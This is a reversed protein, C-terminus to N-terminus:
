TDAGETSRASPSPAAPDRLVRVPAEILEPEPAAGKSVIRPGPGPVAGDVIWDRPIRGIGIPYITLADQDVHLRLFNKHDPIGQAAYLENSNRNLSDAVVLYLAVVEAGVLGGVVLVLGLVSPLSAWWPLTQVLNAAGWTLLVAIILHLVGHSAGFVWAWGPRRRKTFAVAGILVGIVVGVSTLSDALSSALRGPGAAELTASTARLRDPLTVLEPGLAWLMVLTLLTYVGGMLAAFAPILLPLRLVGWRLRLSTTADPFVGRREFPVPDTRGRARSEEPPVTIAKPLHHTPSLYAGGGGATIRQGGDAAEYRVYHHKDGSIWARVHAGSPRVLTRDVFDLTAYAELDGESTSVWSPKASCLIVGDGPQLQGALRELYRRQVDDIYTDFQIDIGWLWWRGPLKVGFYSRSQATRWGGIWRGQCFTRMFATLGDYWDHNGPLALLYPATEPQTERLAARFPGILRDEYVQVHASPYCQDGGMVLLRGRSTTVEGLDLSERALLWAVTYTAEFGDGTDAVYDIWTGEVGSSLDLPEDAPLSGMVERKDQYQGLLGSVVAEGASRLLLGPHLWRTGPQPTFAHVPDDPASPSGPGPRPPIDQVPEYKM